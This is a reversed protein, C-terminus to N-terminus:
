TDGSKKDRISVVVVSKRFFWIILELAGKEFIHDRKFRIMEKGLFFLSLVRRHSISNSQYQLHIKRVEAFTGVMMVVFYALVSILLLVAYRESSHTIIEKLSWGFRHNKIDRFFEEIRMRHGYIEMIEKASLHMHNTGLVWAELQRVRAKTASRGKYKIPRKKSSRRPNRKFPPAQIVRYNLPNSRTVTCEGWDKLGSKSGKELDVIPYKQGDPTYMVVPKALRGVFKWGLNIVVKFWPTRYGSDTIITPIVGKPLIEKLTYLFNTEVQRNSLKELPHVDFYLVFSRGKYSVTAVLACHFCGLQTWDIMVIPRTNPKILLHTLAKCFLNIEGHLRQNGLLRDMRKINHKPTTKTEASRGLASLSLQGGNLLSQVAFFLSKLRSKHVSPLSKSLKKNLIELAHM